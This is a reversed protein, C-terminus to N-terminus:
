DPEDLVLKGIVYLAGLVFPAAVPNVGFVAVLLVLRQVGLV